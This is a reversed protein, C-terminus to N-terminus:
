NKYGILCRTGDKILESEIGFLIMNVMLPTGLEFYTTKTKENFNVQVAKLRSKTTDAKAIEIALSYSSKVKKFLSDATGLNIYIRESYDINNVDMDNYGITEARLSDIYESTNKISNYLENLKAIFISDKSQKSTNKYTLEFQSMADSIDRKMEFKVDKIGDSVSHKVSSSFNCGFLVISIILVLISTQIKM